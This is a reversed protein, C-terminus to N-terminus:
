ESPVDYGNVSVADDTILVKLIVKSLDIYRSIYDRLFSYRTVWYPCVFGHTPVDEILLM